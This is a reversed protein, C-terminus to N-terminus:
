TVRCASLHDGLVWGDRDPDEAGHGYVWNRGHYDIVGQGHWRFGRGAHLTRLYFYGGNGDVAAFL